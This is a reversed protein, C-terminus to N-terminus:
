EVKIINFHITSQSLVIEPNDTGFDVMYDGNVDITFGTINNDEINISATVTVPVLEEKLRMFAGVRVNNASMSACKGIASLIEENPVYKYTLRTKGSGTAKLTFNRSTRIGINILGNNAARVSVCFDQLTKSIIEANANEPVSFDEIAILESTGSVYDRSVTRKLNAIDRVDSMSNQLEMIAAKNEAVAKNISLQFDGYSERFAKVATNLTQMDSKVLTIAQMVNESKSEATMIRTDLNTLSLQLSGVDTKLATLQTIANQYLLEQNAAKNSLDAVTHKVVETDRLLESVSATIDDPMGNIGTRLALDHMVEDIRMMAANMQTLWSTVDSARWLPLGYNKTHQGHTHPPAVFTPPMPPLPALPPLYDHEPCRNEHHHKNKMEETNYDM